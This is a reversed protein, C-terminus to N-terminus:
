AVKSVGGSKITVEGDRVKLYVTRPSSGGLDASDVFLGLQFMIKRIAAQNRKGINFSSADNLMAAGGALNVKLRRKQAGLATMQDLLVAMGTDAFMMPREAARSPEMTSTPLQFHLMGAVAAVPDYLCVGICSGLSYTVIVDDKDASSRADSVNVVINL